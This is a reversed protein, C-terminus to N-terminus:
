SHIEVNVARRARVKEDLVDGEGVNSFRVKYFNDCVNLVKGVLRKEGLNRGEGEQLIDVVDSNNLEVDVVVPSGVEMESLEKLAFFVSRIEGEAQSVSFGDIVGSSVVEEGEDLMVSYAYGVADFTGNGKVSVDSRVRVLTMCVVVVWGM